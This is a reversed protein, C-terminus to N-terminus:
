LNKRTAGDDCSLERVPTLLQPMLEAALRDRAAAPVDTMEVPDRVLRGFYHQSLQTARFEKEGLQAAVARRGALNLDALHRPPLSTGRRARGGLEGSDAARERRVELLPINTM